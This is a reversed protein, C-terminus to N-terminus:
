AVDAKKLTFILYSLLGCGGHILMAILFLPWVWVPLHLYTIIFSAAGVKILTFILDSLYEFVKAHMEPSKLRNVNGLCGLMRRWLVVAAEPTWGVVTGGALM